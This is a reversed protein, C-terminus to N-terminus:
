SRCRGAASAAAGEVGSVWERENGIAALVERDGDTVIAPRLERADLDGIQQRSEHRQRRGITRRERKELVDDPLVQVQQKGIDFDKVRVQEPHDPVGVHLDLLVGFAVEQLRDIQAQFPQAIRRRRQELDLGRHRLARQRDQDLVELDRVVDDHVAAVPEPEGVPARQEAQRHWRQLVRREDRPCQPVALTVLRHEVLDALAVPHDVMRVVRERATSVNMRWATLSGATTAM